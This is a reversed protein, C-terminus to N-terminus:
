KSMKTFYNIKYSKMFRIRLHHVKKTRDDFTGGIDQLQMFKSVFFLKVYEMNKSYMFTILEM